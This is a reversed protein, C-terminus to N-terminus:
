GLGSVLVNARVYPEANADYKDSWSLATMDFIKIGNTFGTDVTIGGNEDIMGYGGVSIMQRKGIMQCTNSWRATMPTDSVLTWHFAPVSLVYIGRTSSANGTQGGGYVFRPAIKTQM